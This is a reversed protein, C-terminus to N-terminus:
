DPIGKQRMNHEPVEKKEKTKKGRQKGEKWFGAETLAQIYADRIARREQERGDWWTLEHRHQYIWVAMHVLQRLHEEADADYFSFQTM